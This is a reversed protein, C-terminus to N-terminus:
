DTRIPLHHGHTNEPCIWVPADSSGTYWGGVPDNALSLRCGLCDFRFRSPDVIDVKEPEPKPAAAIAVKVLTHIYQPDPM